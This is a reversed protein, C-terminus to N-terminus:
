EAEGQGPEVELPEDKEGEVVDEEQDSVTQKRKAAYNNGKNIGLSLAPPNGTDPKINNKRRENQMKIWETKRDLGERKCKAVLANRFRLTAFNSGRKSGELKQYMTNIRAQLDSTSIHPVLELVLQGQIDDPHIRGDDFNAINVDRQDMLWKNQWAAASGGRSKPLQREAIGAQQAQTRAPQQEEGQDDATQKAVLVSRRATYQAPPASVGEPLVFAAFLESYQEGAGAPPVIKRFIWVTHTVDRQLTSAFVQATLSGDFSSTLVGLQYNFKGFYRQAHCRAFCRLLRPIGDINFYHAQFAPKGEGAINDLKAVARTNEDCLDNLISLQRFDPLAAIDQLYACSSDFATSGSVMEQSIVLGDVFAQQLATLASVCGVVTQPGTNIDFLGEVELTFEEVDHPPQDVIGVDEMIEPNTKQDLLSDNQSAM